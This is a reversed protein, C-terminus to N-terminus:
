NGPTPLEMGPLAQLDGMGLERYDSPVEFLQKPQPGTSIDTLEIVRGDPLVQRLPIGLATDTWSEIVQGGTSIRYGQANRGGINQTGLSECGPNGPNACPNNRLLETVGSPILSALAAGDYSLFTKEQPFLINYSQSKLDALTVAEMQGVMTEVRAKEQGVYIVGETPVGDIGTVSLHARFEPPNQASADMVGVVLLLALFRKMNILM